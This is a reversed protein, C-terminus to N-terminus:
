QLSRVVFNDLIGVGEFGVYKPTPIAVTYAGLDAGNVSGGLTQNAPDYSLALENWGNNFTEGTALLPGNMGNVRLEYVINFGDFAAKPKLLLWVSASTKLNSYLLGSGTLGIAVYGEAIPAPWGNMSIEYAAAPARFPMLATPIDLVPRDFWESAVCGNAYTLQLPSPMELANDSAGCFRWTQGEAPALWQTDKSGPYEMWFGRIPTHAWVERCDGKGGKPRLLEAPGFSERMIVDPAPATSPLPCSVTPTTGVDKALLDGASMALTAAAAVALFLSKRTTRITM